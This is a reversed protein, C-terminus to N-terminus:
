LGLNVRWRDDVVACFAAGSAYNEAKVSRSVAM